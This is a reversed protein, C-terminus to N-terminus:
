LLGRRYTVSGSVRLVVRNIVSQRFWFVVVGKWHSSQSVLQCVCPGM